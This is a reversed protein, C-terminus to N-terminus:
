AFTITQQEQWGFYIKMRLFSIGGGKAYMEEPEDGMSIHNDLIIGATDDLDKYTLLRTVISQLNTYLNTVTDRDDVYRQWVEIVTMWNAKYTTPTIWEIDQEGGMRLIAFFQSLGSSLINYNGRSVNNIGYGATQLIQKEILVEGASYSM